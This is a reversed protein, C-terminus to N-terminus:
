LNPESTSIGSGCFGAAGLRRLILPELKQCFRGLPLKEAFDSFNIRSFFGQNPL